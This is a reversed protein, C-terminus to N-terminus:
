NSGVLWPQKAYWDNAKAESWRAAPTQASALALLGTILLLCRRARKMAEGKTIALALTVEEAGDRGGKEDNGGTAPAFLRVRGHDFELM